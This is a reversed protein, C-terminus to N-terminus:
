EARALAGAGPGTLADDGPPRGSIALLLALATGRVEPGSGVVLGTDTASLRLGAVTERAGGFSTSTRIQLALAGAVAAPAYTRVIGLPRRVDEGHVVMEVLRTALPAPPTATMPVSEAFRRLTEEPTAGRARAIGHENQRDFDMRARLMGVVFRGRTTRATDVLHALVDHVTWGPCLSPTDWRVGSVDRLDAVLAARESHVLKWVETM